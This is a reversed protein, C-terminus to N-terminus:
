SAIKLFPSKRSASRLESPMAAIEVKMAITTAAM